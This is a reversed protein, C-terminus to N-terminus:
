IALHLIHTEFPHTPLALGAGAWLECAEQAEEMSSFIDATPENDVLVLIGDPTSEALYARGDLGRGAQTHACGTWIIPSFM